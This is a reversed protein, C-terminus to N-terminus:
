GRTYNGRKNGDCADLTQRLHRVIKEAAREREAAPATPCLRDVLARAEATLEADTTM